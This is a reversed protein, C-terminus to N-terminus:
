ITLLQYPPEIIQILNSPAEDPRIIRLPLGTASLNIEMQVYNVAPGAHFASLLIVGAPQDLEQDTFVLDGPRFRAQPNGM